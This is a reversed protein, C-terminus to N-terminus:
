IWCMASVDFTELSVTAPLIFDACNFICISVISSDDSFLYVTYVPLNYLLTFVATVEDDTFVKKAMRGFRTVM